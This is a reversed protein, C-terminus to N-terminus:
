DQHMVFLETDTIVIYTDKELVQAYCQDNVIQINICYILASINTSLHLFQPSSLMM